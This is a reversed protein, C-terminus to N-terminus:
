TATQSNRPVFVIFAFLACAAAAFVPKPIAFAFRLWKSWVSERKPEPLPQSLAQATAVKMVTMYEQTKELLDQCSACVLLHDEVENVETEPMRGLLYQELREDSIHAESSSMM